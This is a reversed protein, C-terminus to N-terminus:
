KGWNLAEDFSATFKIDRDHLVIKAQLGESNVHDRFAAAQELVWEENPTVVKM